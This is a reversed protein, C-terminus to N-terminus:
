ARAFLAYRGQGVSWEVIFSRYKMAGDFIKHDLTSTLELEKEVRERVRKGFRERKRQNRSVWRNAHSRNRDM